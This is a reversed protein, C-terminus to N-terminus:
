DERVEDGRLSAMAEYTMQLFFSYQSLVNVDLVCASDKENRGGITRSANFVNFRTTEGFPRVFRRGPNGLVVPPQLGVCCHEVDEVGNPAVLRGVAEDIVTERVQIVSCIHVRECEPLGIHVDLALFGLSHDKRNARHHSDTQPFSASITTNGHAPELSLFRFLINLIGM